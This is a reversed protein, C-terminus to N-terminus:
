AVIFTCSPAWHWTAVSRMESCAKLCRYWVVYGKFWVYLVGRQLLLGVALAASAKLLMVALVVKCRVM